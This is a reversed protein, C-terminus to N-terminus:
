SSPEVIPQLNAFGKEFMGGVIKDGDWVLNMIKSLTTNQGYMAWTVQTSGDANLKFLFETMNSAKFPKEFDLTMRIHDYPVSDVITMRGIGVQDNTSEWAMGATNGEEAGSFTTHAQPDLKAWPSWDQWQHLNNIHAFVREVPAKFTATREIRFSDPQSAVLAFVTIILLAAILGFIKTM